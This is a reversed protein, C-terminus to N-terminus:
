GGPEVELFGEGGGGGDEGVQGEGEDGEGEAHEDEDLREDRVAPDGDEGEAPVVPDPLRAGDAGDASHAEEGHDQAVYTKIGTGVVGGSGWLRLTCTSVSSTPMYNAPVFMPVEMRSERTMWAQCTMWACGPDGGM